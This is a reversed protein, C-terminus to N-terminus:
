TTLSGATRMIESILKAASDAISFGTHLEVIQSRLWARTAVEEVEGELLPRTHNPTSVDPIAQVCTFMEDLLPELDEFKVDARLFTNIGVIAVGVMGLSRVELPIQSDSGKLALFMRLGWKEAKAAPMETILFCKGVDRGWAPEKPITVIKSKLM